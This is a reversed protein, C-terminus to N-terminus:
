ATSSRDAAAMGTLSRIRDADDRSMPNYVLMTLDPRGDVAFASYEIAIQGLVSHRLHKVGEGFGRVDGDDWMRAFEPSRHRLEEVLPEVKASAGARAADARFVGVVFRAVGEWDMNAARSKPDLFILRLVNREAPPLKGYDTLMAGGGREM